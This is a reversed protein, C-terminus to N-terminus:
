NCIVFGSATTDASWVKTVLIPFFGVPVNTFTTDQGGVTTVKINGESGVYLTSPTYTTSDSKTIATANEAQLSVPTGSKSYNFSM